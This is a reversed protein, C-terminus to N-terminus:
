ECLTQLASSAGKVVVRLNVSVEQRREKVSSNVPLAGQVNMM